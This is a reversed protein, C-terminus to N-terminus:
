FLFKKVEGFMICFQARPIRKPLRDVREKVSSQKFRRQGLATPFHHSVPRVWSSYTWVLRRLQSLPCAIQLPTLSLLMDPQIVVVGSSIFM